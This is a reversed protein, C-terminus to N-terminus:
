ATLSRTTGNWIRCIFTWMFSIKRSNPADSTAAAEIMDEMRSPFADISDLLEDLWLAKERTVTRWEEPVHARRLRAAWDLASSYARGMQRAGHAISQVDDEALARNLLDHITFAVAETIREAEATCSGLWTFVYSEYVAEGTGYAIGANYERRRDAAANVEERVLQSLLLGQWGFPQQTALRLARTSLGVLAPQRRTEAALNLGRHVEYALQRRLASIIDQATDFPFTWVKHEDRVLKIFEFLRPSDVAHTFDANPNKEWTTLHVLLDRQVFAFIPISKATATLYELNTVSTTAEPPVSGYRTGIVLVFIDADEEVRRRCNEIADADPNVPFSPHESALFIYGLQGDIFEALDARVQKLDYFTSSIFVGPLKTV